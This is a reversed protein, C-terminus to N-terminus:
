GFQIDQIISDEDLIITVREPAWELTRNDHPKLARCRRGILLDKVTQPMEKPSLPISPNPQPDAMTKERQIVGVILGSSVL